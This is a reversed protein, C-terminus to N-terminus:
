TQGGGNNTPQGHNSRYENLVSNLRKVSKSSGFSSATGRHMPRPWQGPTIWAYGSSESNLTPSFEKEVIAVYTYYVFHHDQSQFIDFPYIKKIDPVSGMEEGLERILTIPPSEGPESMGGWIAWSLSHSKHPARLNLLARGTESSIILAGAGTKEQDNVKVVWYTILAGIGRRTSVM